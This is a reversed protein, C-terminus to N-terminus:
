HCNPFVVDNNVCSCEGKTAALNITCNMREFSPRKNPVRSGKQRFQVKLSSVRAKRHWLFHKSYSSHFTAFSSLKIFHRITFKTAWQISLKSHCKVAIFFRLWSDIKGQLGSEFFGLYKIHPPSGGLFSRALLFLLTLGLVPRYKRAKSQSNQHHCKSNSETSVLSILTSCKQVLWSLHPLLLLSTTHKLLSTRWCCNCKSYCCLLHLIKM